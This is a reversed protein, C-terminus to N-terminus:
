GYGGDEGGWVHLERQGALRQQAPSPLQELAQILRHAHGARQATLEQGADVPVPLHGPTSVWSKWIKQLKRGSAAEAMRCAPRKARSVRRPEALSLSAV